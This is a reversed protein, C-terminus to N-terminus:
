FQNVSLVNLGMIKKFDAVNMTLVAYGSAIATAAIIMDHAGPGVGISALNALIKAYIRAAETDFPLITFSDIINEVFAARKIRREETSAREVGVLLETVTISSIYGQGYGQWKSFDIQGKEAAIIVCTNIVIGM